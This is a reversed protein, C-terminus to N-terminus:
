MWRTLSASFRAKASRSGVVAIRLEDINRQIREERLLVRGSLSRADPWMLREGLHRLRPKARSARRSKGCPDLLVGSLGVRAIDADDVLLAVRKGGRRAIADAARRDDGPQAQDAGSAARLAPEIRVMSGRQLAALSRAQRGVRGHGETVATEQHREARGTRIHLRLRHELDEQVDDLKAHIRLLCDLLWAEPGVIKRLGEPWMGVPRSQELQFRADVCPRDVIQPRTSM